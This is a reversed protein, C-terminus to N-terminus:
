MRRGEEGLDYRRDRPRVGPTRRRSRRYSRARPDPTPGTLGNGRGTAEARGVAAALEGRLDHHADLTVLGATGLADGWAGLAAPM